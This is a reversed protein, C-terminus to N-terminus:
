IGNAPGPRRRRRLRSLLVFSSGCLALSGPEPTAAPSGARAIIAPNGANYRALVQNPDTINVAAGFEINSPDAVPFLVGATVPHGVGAPDLTLDGAAAGNTLAGASGSVLGLPVIGNANSTLAAAAGNFEGIFGHGSSTAFTAANRFLQQVAAQSAIVDAFDGNFLVVNGTPGVYSGIVGAAAASLGPTGFGAGNRTYVFAQYTSTFGPALIDADSVLTATTGPITNLFPLIGNNGFVAIADARAPAATVACFLLAPILACLARKLSPLM